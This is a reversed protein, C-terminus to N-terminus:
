HYTVIDGCNRLPSETKIIQSKKEGNNDFYRVKYYIRVFTGSHYGFIRQLFTPPPLEPSGGSAYFTCCNPNEKIYEDFSKYKIFEVDKPEKGPINVRLRGAANLNEFTWRIKEETNLYRMKAFCFGSHNLGFYVILVILPIGIFKFVFVLFTHHRM